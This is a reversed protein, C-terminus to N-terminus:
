RRGRPRFQRGGRRALPRRVDQPGPDEPVDLGLRDREELAGAAAVDLGAQHLVHGPELQTIVLVAVEIADLHDGRGDRGGNGHHRQVPAEGQERQQDGRRDQSVRRTARTRRSRVMVWCRASASRCVWTSSVRLMLPARASWSGRCRGPWGAPAEGVGGGARSVQFHTELEGSAPPHGRHADDEGRDGGHQVQDRTEGGQGTADRDEAGQDGEGAELARDEQGIMAAGFMPACHTADM